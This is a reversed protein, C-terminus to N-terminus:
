GGAELVRLPTGDADILPCLGASCGDDYVLYEVGTSHDVVVYLSPADTDHWSWRAQGTELESFEMSESWASSADGKSCGVMGLLALVLMLAVAAVACTGLVFTVFQVFSRRM